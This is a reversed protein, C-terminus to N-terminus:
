PGSAPSGHVRDADGENQRSEVEHTEHVERKRGQDEKNGRTGRRRDGEAAEAKEEGGPNGGDIVHVVGDEEDTYREGQGAVGVERNILHMGPRGHRGLEIGEIVQATDKAVKEEAATGFGPEKCRCPNNGRRNQEKRGQRVAPHVPADFLLRSLPKRRLAPAVIMM